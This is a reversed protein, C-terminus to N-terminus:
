MVSFLSLFFILYSIFYMKLLCLLHFSGCGHSFVLEGQRGVIEAVHESTPVVVCETTNVSKRRTNLACREGDDLMMMMRWDVEAPGDQFLRGPGSVEMGTLEPPVARIRMQELDCDHRILNNNINEEDSGPHCLPQLDLVAGLVGLHSVDRPESLSDDDMLSLGSLNRVPVPLDPEIDDSELLQATNSPM